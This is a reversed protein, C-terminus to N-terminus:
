TGDEDGDVTWAFVDALRDIPAFYLEFPRGGDPIEFVLRGERTEGPAIAVGDIGVDAPALVFDAVDRLVFAAPDIDLPAASDNRIAVLALVVSAGAADTTVGGDSVAITLMPLGSDDVLSVGDGYRDSAARAPAPISSVGGTVAIAASAIAASVVTRRSTMSPGKTDPAGGDQQPLLPDWKGSERRGGGPVDEVSWVTPTSTV